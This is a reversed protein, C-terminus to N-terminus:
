RSARKLSNMENLLKQFEEVALIITVLGDNSNSRLEIKNNDKHVVSFDVLTEIKKYGEWNKPESTTLIIQAM